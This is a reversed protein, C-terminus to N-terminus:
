DEALKEWRKFADELTLRPTLSTTRIIPTVNRREKFFVCSGQIGRKDELLIQVPYSDVRDWCSAEQIGTDPDIDAFRFFLCIAHLPITANAAQVCSVSCKASLMALYKAM